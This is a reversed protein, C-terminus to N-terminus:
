REYFYRIVADISVAGPGVTMLVLLIAGWYVHSVWLADPMVYIALLVTIALLGLAAIRTAFGFVICIPLVFLAYAFVYAAVTPSMPLAAYPAAQFMQFTAEKIEAPLTVTFEFGRGLWAFPITPGDIMPQGQLLFVRAIIFRLGLAVLAYPVVACLAVLKAIILLIGSGIISGSGPRALTSTSTATM